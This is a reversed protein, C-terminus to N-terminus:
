VAEKRRQQHLRLTKVANDQTQLVEVPYGHLLLVPRDCATFDSRREVQNRSRLDLLSKLDSIRRRLRRATRALPM